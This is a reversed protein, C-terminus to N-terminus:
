DIEALLSKNDSGTEEIEDQKGEKKGEKVTEVRVDVSRDETGLIRKALGFRTGTGQTVPVGGTKLRKNSAGDVVDNADRKEDRTRHTPFSVGGRLM